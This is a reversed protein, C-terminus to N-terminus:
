NDSQISFTDNTIPVPKVSVSGIQLTNELQQIQETIEEAELGPFKKQRYQRRTEVSEEGSLKQIGDYVAIAQESWRSLKIRQELTHTFDPKLATYKKESRIEMSDIVDCISEAASHDINDFYRKLHETQTADMEYEPSDNLCYSIYERLEERTYVKKSVTQPLQSVYEEGQVPRYSVVPVGMLVSEIGTTCDHHLTVSAGAIWTRVDGSDEVHIRDYNRFAKEYTANNESPHPRIVINTDPFEDQLYYLVEMFSYFVRNEYTLKESQISGYIEEVKTIQRQSFPNAFDFNTNLLIYDGYRENLAASQNQYVFRLHPQLLDFRPNGTVYVNTVDGYEQYIWEAQVEGWVFLADIYDVVKKKNAIYEDTSEFVAGEPDLGCVSIGASQLEEFFELNGDGPDKTIYFDPKSFHLSNKIEYSPGIIV